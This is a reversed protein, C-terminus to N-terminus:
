RRDRERADGRILLSPNESLMMMLQSASEMTERLNEMSVSFDERTQMVMLSLNDTLVKVSAVASDARSILQPINGGEVSTRFTETVGKVDQAVKLVESVVAQVTDIVGKAPPVMTGVDALLGRADGFLGKADGTLDALNDIAVKVSHLSDPNTIVNLQRLLTEVQDALIGVREGISAFLTGRTPVEGGAKLLPAENSGGSIEIYKLGTIGILGTTAYMDVRMPFGDAVSMEVRMKNIDDPNYAVRQVRGISVGNFKVSAGQELGQLSEGSFFAVYTKTRHSMKNAIPVVIFAALTIMGIVVFVGLRTKQAATIGMRWGWGYGLYVAGNARASLIYRDIAAM